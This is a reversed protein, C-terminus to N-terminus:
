KVIAGINYSPKGKPCTKLVQAKIKKLDSIKVGLEKKEGPTIAKKQAAALKKEALNIQNVIGHLSIIVKKPM